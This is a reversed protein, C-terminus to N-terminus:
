CCRLVGKILPGVRPESVGSYGKDFLYLLAVLVPGRGAPRSDGLVPIHLGVVHQARHKYLRLSVWLARLSWLNALVDCLCVGEGVLVFRVVAREHEDEGAGAVRLREVQVAHLEGVTDELRGTVL